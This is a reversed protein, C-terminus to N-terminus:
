LCRHECQNYGKGIITRGWPYYYKSSEELKFWYYDPEKKSSIAINSVFVAAARINEEKYGCQVLLKKEELLSDGSLVVDEIILIKRDKYKEIENSVYTEWKGTKYFYQRNDEVPVTFKNGRKKSSGYIVPIYKDSLLYFLNAVIGAAGTSACLILEPNFDSSIEKCLAEVGLEIDQWDFKSMKAEIKKTKRQFYISSITGVIGFISAIISIIADM